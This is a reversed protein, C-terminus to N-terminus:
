IIINNYLLLFILNEVYIQNRHIIFKLNNVM